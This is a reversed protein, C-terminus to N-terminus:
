LNGRWASRILVCSTTREFTSNWLTTTSMTNNSAEEKDGTAFIVGSTSIEVILTFSMTAMSANDAFAVNQIARSGVKIWLELTTM